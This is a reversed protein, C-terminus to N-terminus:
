DEDPQEDEDGEPEPTDTAWSNRRAFKEQQHADFDREAAFKAAEDLLDLVPRAAKFIGDLGEPTQGDFKANIREVERQYAEEAAALAAKRKEAVVEPSFEEKVAEIVPKLANLNEEAKNRANILFSVQEEQSLGTRGMLITEITGNLLSYAEHRATDYEPHRGLPKRAEKLIGVAKHRFQQVTTPTETVEATNESM